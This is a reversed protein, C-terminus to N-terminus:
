GPQQNQKLLEIIETNQNRIDLLVELTLTSNVTIEKTICDERWTSACYGEIEQEIEDRTRM